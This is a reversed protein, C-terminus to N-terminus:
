FEPEGEKPIRGDDGGGLLSSWALSRVPNKLLLDRLFRLLFPACRLNM